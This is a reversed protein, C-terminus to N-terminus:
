ALASRLSSISAALDRAFDDDKLWPGWGVKEDPKQGAEFKAVLYMDEPTSRLVYNECSLAHGIQEAYAAAGSSSDFRYLLVRDVDIMWQIVFDCGVPLASRAVILARFRDYEVYYERNELERIIQILAPETQEPTAEAAECGSRFAQIFEDQHCLQSWAIQNDRLRVVHTWDTWQEDVEDKLVFRGHILCHPKVQWDHPLVELDIAHEVADTHYLWFRHDDLRIQIGRQCGQPLAYSVIEEEVSVGLGLGRFADLIPAFIGEEFGWRTQEPLELPTKYLTTRPRPAAWAHWRLFSGRLRRLQQGELPGATAIGTMHWTSGTEGDVFEGDRLEFTLTREGLRRDYGVTSFGNPAPDCWISVPLGSLDDNVVNGNHKVQRWPYARVGEPENVGLVAEQEPLREDPPNQMTGLFYQHELWGIGRREFYEERGHGHRVDRHMPDAPEALVVTDPYWTRWVGWTTHLQPGLEELVTGDLEGHYCVPECHQWISNTERDRLM